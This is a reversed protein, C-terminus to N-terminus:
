SGLYMTLLNGENQENRSHMYLWEATDLEKHTAWWAESDM